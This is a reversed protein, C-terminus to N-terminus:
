FNRLVGLELLSPLMIRYLLSHSFSSAESYILLNLRSLFLYSQLHLWIIRLYENPVVENHALAYLTSAVNHQLCEQESELLKLLPVIGGSQAIGAQNHTDQFVSFKNFNLFVLIIIVLIKIKPYFHLDFYHSGFQFYSINGHVQALWALAYASTERSEANPSQLMEILPPVAGRQIIHM